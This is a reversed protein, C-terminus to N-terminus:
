YIWFLYFLSGFVGICNNILFERCLNIYICRLVGRCGMDLIVVFGNM